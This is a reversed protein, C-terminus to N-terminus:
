KREFLKKEKKSIEIEKKRTTQIGTAAKTTMSDEEERERRALHSVQGFM